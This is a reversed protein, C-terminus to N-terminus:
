PFLLFTGKFSGKRGGVKTALAGQRQRIGGKAFAGGESVTGWSFRLFFPGELATQKITPNARANESGRVRLPYGRIQTGSCGQIRLALTKSVAIWIAKYISRAKRPKKAMGHTLMKPWASEGKKQALALQNGRRLASESTEQIGAIM